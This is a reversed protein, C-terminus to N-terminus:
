DLILTEKVNKSLAFYCIIFIHIPINFINLTFLNLIITMSSAVILINKAKKSKAWLNAMGWCFILFIVIGILYIISDIIMGKELSILFSGLNFIFIFISVILGITLLITVFLLSGKIKPEKNM